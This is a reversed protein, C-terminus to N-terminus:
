RAWAADGPATHFPPETMLDGGLDYGASFCAGGGRIITVRVNPDRDNGELVHLLETRMVTSIANRKEPRDLTIRCIGEGPADLVITQFETM